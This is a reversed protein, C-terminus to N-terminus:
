EGSGMGLFREVVGLVEDVSIGEMCSQWGKDLPCVGSYWCVQETFNSTIRDPCDPYGQLNVHPPPQGYRGHWSPGFLTITPVNVAAAIRAPGTDAAVVLDAFSLASALDRLKGRPFIRANGGIGKAINTAQNVSSGIPVIVTGGWRQQLSWGLHIFNIESWQKIAMGADPCLFVLPRPLHSLQQQAKSLEDPTLHLQAPKITDPNILGEALLIKVFRDGVREDEPPQRWLNTVIRSAGSNQIVKDIDDYNTDSVILDFRECSLLDIVSQKAKGPQAYIVRNILSDTELLEGGPPFTLITLDDALYSRGLAQIAALAILIDGIGGLLEVFLIKGM